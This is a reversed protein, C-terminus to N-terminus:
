DVGCSNEAELEEDHSVARFALTQLADGRPNGTAEDFRVHCTPRGRRLEDVDM